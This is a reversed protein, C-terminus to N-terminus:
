PITRVSLPVEKRWEQVSVSDLLEITRLKKVVYRHYKDGLGAVPNGSLLIERLKLDLLEDIESLDQPLFLHPFQFM